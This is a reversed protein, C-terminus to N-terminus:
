VRLISVMLPCRGNPANVLVKGAARLARIASLANAIQIDPAIVALAARTRAVFEADEHVILVKEAM